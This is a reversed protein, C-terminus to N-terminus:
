NAQIYLYYSAMKVRDHFMQGQLARLFEALRPTKGAREGLVPDDPFRPVPMRSIRQADPVEINWDQMLWNGSTFVPAPSEAAEDFQFRYWAGKTLASREIRECPPTASSSSSTTSASAETSIEASQSPLTMPSSSSAGCPLVALAASPDSVAYLPAPEEPKTQNAKGIDEKPQKSQSSTKSPASPDIRLVSPTIRSVGLRIGGPVLDGAAEAWQAQLVGKALSVVPVISGPYNGRLRAGVGELEPPTQPQPAPKRTFFLEVVNKKRSDNQYKRLENELNLGRLITEMGHRVDPAAGAFIVYFPMTYAADKLLGNAPMGPLDEVGGDFVSRIMLVGVAGADNNLYPDIQNNLYKEALANAPFAIVGGSQYLDTVIIKLEANKKGLPQRDDAPHAVHNVATEIRTSPANFQAPSRSLEQLGYVPPLPQVDAGFKWFRVTPHQWGGSGPANQLITDGQDLLGALYNKQQSGLATGQLFHRISGSGDVYVNIDITKSLDWNETTPVPMDPMPPVPKFIRWGLLGGAVLGLVIFVVPSRQHRGM